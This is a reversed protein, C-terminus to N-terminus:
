LSAFEEEEILIGRRRLPEPVLDPDANLALPSETRRPQWWGRDVVEREVLWDPLPADVQGLRWEVLGAVADDWRSRTRLPEEAALLVRQFANVAALDDAIQLFTRYAAAPSSEEQVIIEASARAVTARGHLPVPVFEVGIASAILDVTGITPVRRGHEIASINSAAIGSVSALDYLSRGTNLRARRLGEADM